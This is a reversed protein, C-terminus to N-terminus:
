RAVSSSDKERVAPNTEEVVQVGKGTRAVTRAVRGRQLIIADLQRNQCPTNQYTSTSLMCARYVLTASRKDFSIDPTKIPKTKMHDYGCDHRAVNSGSDTTYTRTTGRLTSKMQKSNLVDFYGTISTNFRPLRPLKLAGSFPV